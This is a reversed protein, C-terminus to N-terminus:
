PPTQGGTPDSESSTSHPTQSRVVFGDSGWSDPYALPLIKTVFVMAGGKVRNLRSPRLYADVRPEVQAAVLTQWVRNGVPNGNYDVVRFTQFDKGSDWEFEATLNHGISRPFPVYWRTVWWWHFALALILVEIGIRCWIRSRGHANGPSSM